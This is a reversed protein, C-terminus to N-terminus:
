LFSESFKLEIFGIKTLKLIFAMRNPWWFLTCVFKMFDVEM